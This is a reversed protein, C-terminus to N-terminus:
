YGPKTPEASAPAGPSSTAAGGPGSSGGAPQTCASVVIALGILAAIARLRARRPTFTM